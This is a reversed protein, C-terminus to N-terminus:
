FRMTSDWPRSVSPQRPHRALFWCPTGLTEAESRVHFGARQYFVVNEPKDTELWASEGRADIEAIRAALMRSGIGLGQLGGDVVVPGLHWHPEAPDRRSWAELWRLTRRLPGLGTRALAAIVRPMAPAPLRCTGPPAAGCVGVIYGARLAVLPAAPAAAFLARFLRALAVTRRDPDPGFVMVHIPNDRMGRAAVAAAQIRERPQMPRIGIELV